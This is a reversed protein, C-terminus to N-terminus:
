MNFTFRQLCPIRLTKFGAGAVANPLQSGAQAVFFPRRTAALPVFFRRHGFGVAWISACEAITSKAFGRHSLPSLGLTQPFCETLFLWLNRRYRRVLKADPKPAPGIEALAEHMRRSRESALSYRPSRQIAQREMLKRKAEIRLERDTTDVMRNGSRRQRKLSSAFTTIQQDPIQGGEQKIIVKGIRARIRRFACQIAYNTWAEGRSNRFLPGTPNTVMLRRSIALAEDTLYVVRSLQQTKSESKPFVWRQNKVDVHRAEVRLSEQPRCGTEWTTVVLDYFGPDRIANLLQAYQEDTILVERREPSPAEMESLPNAEIYGQRQAWKLSRKVARICNRQTTPAIAQADVWEQVHFPKLEDVTLDPYRRAFSQLRWWYWQYTGASRHREVWDMFKDCLIVVPQGASATIATAPAPKPAAMLDRYQAFAADRDPGLNIQRGDLQVYWLQRSKRFFPKPYHPM